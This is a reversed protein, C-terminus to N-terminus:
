AELFFRRFLEPLALPRTLFNKGYYSPKCAAPLEQPGDQPRTNKEDMPNEM